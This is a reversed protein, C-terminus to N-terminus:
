RRLFWNPTWIAASIGDSSKTLRWIWSLLWIACGDKLTHIYTIDSVWKQNINTTSFDRNLLNEGGEYVSSTKHLRFKKIVISRLGVPKM